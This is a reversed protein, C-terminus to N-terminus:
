RSGPFPRYEPSRLLPLVTSPLRNGLLGTDHRAAARTAPTMRSRSGHLRPREQGHESGVDPPLRPGGGAEPGSPRPLSRPVAEVPAANPQFQHSPRVCRPTDCHHCVFLGKPIPGNMWEWVLRHAYQYVGNWRVRGYEHGNTPYTWCHPGPTVRVWFLRPDTLRPVGKDSRAKRPTGDLNLTVGRGRAM